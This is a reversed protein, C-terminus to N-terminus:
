PLWISMPTVFRYADQMISALGLPTWFRSRRSGSVLLCFLNLLLCDLLLPALSSRLRRRGPAVAAGGCRRLPLRLLAGVLRGARPTPPPARRVLLPLRRSRGDGRSEPRNPSRREAALRLRPGKAFKRRTTAIV